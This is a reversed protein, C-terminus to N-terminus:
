RSVLFMITVLIAASKLVKFHHRTFTNKSAPDQFPSVKDLHVM